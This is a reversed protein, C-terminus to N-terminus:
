PIPPIDPGDGGDGDGSYYAGAGMTLFSATQDEILTTADDYMSDVATMVVGGGLGDGDGGGAGTRGIGITAAIVALIVASLVLIYELVNQAKRKRLKGEGGVGATESQRARILM